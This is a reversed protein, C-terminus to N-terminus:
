ELQEPYLFLEERYWQKPWTPIGGKVEWIKPSICVERLTPCAAVVLNVTDEALEDDQIYKWAM